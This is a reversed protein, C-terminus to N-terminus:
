VLCAWPLRRARWPVSRFSRAMAVSSELDLSPLRVPIGQFSELALRGQDLDVRQRRFLASLANGVEWPLSPASLLDVGRTANLLRPKTPENLIVAM